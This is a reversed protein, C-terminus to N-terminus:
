GGNNGFLKEIPYPGNEIAGFIAANVYGGIDHSGPSEGYNIAGIDAGLAVEGGGFIVLLTTAEACLLVCAAAGAGLFGGEGLVAAYGGATHRGGASISYNLASVGAYIM